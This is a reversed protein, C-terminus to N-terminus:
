ISKVIRGKVKSTPLTIYELPIHDTSIIFGDDKRFFKIGGKMALELDINIIVLNRQDHTGDNECLYTMPSIGQTRIDNLIKRNTRCIINDIPECIQDFFFSSLCKEESEELGDRFRVRMKFTNIDFARRPNDSVIRKIVSSNIRKDTFRELLEDILISSDYYDVSSFSGLMNDCLFIMKGTLNTLMNSTIFCDNNTYESDDRNIKCIDKRTPKFEIDSLSLIEDLTMWRAEIIDKDLDCHNPIFGYDEHQETIKAFYLNCVSNGKLSKEIYFVPIYMYNFGTLGTEEMFERRACEYDSSDTEERKGKPFSWIGHKDLVLLIENNSNRLIIGNCNAKTM